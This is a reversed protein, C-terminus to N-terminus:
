SPLAHRLSVLVEIEARLSEVRDARGAVEFQQAASTRSAVEADLVAVLAPAHLMRRAVEGAGVGAVGGAIVGTQAEPAASVDAAEANDIAGLLSRLVGM